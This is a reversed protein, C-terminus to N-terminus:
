TSQTYAAYASAFGKLTMQAEDAETFPVYQSALAEKYPATLASPAILAINQGLWYARAAALEAGLAAGWIQSHARADNLATNQWQSRSEALRLALAEPKSMVDQLPAVLADRDIETDLAVPSLAEVVPSTVFGLVSVVENASILVWYTTDFGPLCLVGDWDKNLELFGKIRVCAASLWAHPKTQAMAALRLVGDKPALRLDATAAPLTLALGDSAAHTVLSADQAIERAEDLSHAIHVTGDASANRMRWLRAPRHTQDFAFWTEALQSM